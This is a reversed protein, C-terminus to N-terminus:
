ITKLSVVRLCLSYWAGGAHSNLINELSSLIGNIEFTNFFINWFKFFYLPNLSSSHFEALSYSRHQPTALFGWNTYLDFKLVKGLIEFVLRTRSIINEISWIMRVWIECVFNGVKWSFDLFFLWLELWWLLAILAVIKTLIFVLEECIIVM